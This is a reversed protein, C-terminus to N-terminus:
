SSPCTCGFRFERGNKDQSIGEELASTVTFQIASPTTLIQCTVPATSARYLDRNVRYLDPTRTGV